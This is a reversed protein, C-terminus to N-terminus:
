THMLFDLGQSSTPELRTFLPSRVYNTHASICFAPPYLTHTHTHSLSLSLSPSLSLSLSCPLPHAPPEFHVSALYSTTNKPPPSAPLSCPMAPALETAWVPLDGIFLLYPPNTPFFNAILYPSPLSSAPTPAASM